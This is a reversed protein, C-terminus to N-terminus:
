TSGKAGKRTSNAKSNSRPKKGTEKGKRKAQEVASRKSTGDAKGKGFPKVRGSKTIFFVKDDNIEPVRSLYVAWEEAESRRSISLLDVLGPYAAKLKKKQRYLQTRVREMEEFSSCKIAVCEGEESALVKDFIKEISIM